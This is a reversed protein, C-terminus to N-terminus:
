PVSDEAASTEEARTMQSATSRTTPEDSAQNRNATCSACFAVFILLLVIYQRFKASTRNTM